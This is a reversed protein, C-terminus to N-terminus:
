ALFLDTHAMEAFRCFANALKMQEPTRCDPVFLEGSAVVVALCRARSTAVNLRNPSYLFEMGRPAEEASSTTMSYIVIPAEQGQFKDVTGVRAGPIREAIEAVQSNYPAVILIDQLRITAEVRESNVWRAKAALIEEVLSAIAEAEQVSESTNGEHMVEILRLGSGVLPGGVVAQRELGKRAHLRDEYFLESTFACIDPHLRWTRDLFLGRDPPVTAHEGLLHDLVSVDAGPPHVGQQPQDLQRPDGLLVLSKTARAVAVANALAFQGAEDVFLLDVSDILDPHCWLWATGAALQADGNLVANRVNQSKDSATIDASACRKEEDAKQMGRFTVGKEKAARCVEDLLNGIVKHSTATIGVKLGRQLARVIMRAGTFTKGAGPPGQIPLVSHDLETTLRVAADVLSEGERALQARPPSRLLLDAIVGREPFGNDAIEAATGFVSDRLDYDRVDDFPILAAPHPVKSTKGRKLDITGKVDDIAVIEGAPKETRPDVPEDGVHLDHEQKPFRYRHVASKKITGVVGEYELGGLTARDEIMEVDSLDRCRFYEWWMSKKERRHFEVLQATLWRAHQEETREAVDIPVDSTLREVLERIAAQRETSEQSPPTEVRTPRPISTGADAEHASRLKELWEDLRLTSICDDRNYAEIEGLLAEGDVGEGLQLWAEFQALASRANRLDVARTYNYFPEMQKISYSEVSARLAQKVVRLLDVFVDARLLGDLEDERTGYRGMLKKLQTTEYHGYHYVHMDPYQERRAVVYDIFQEFGAKEAAPYLARLREYNGDRDVYGFLYQIGYTFAYPDGEFDFFIDGASPAPLAALGQNEVIPQLLEHKPQQATRGEVQIRAQGQIRAFSTKTIGDLPSTSAALAAMTDVGAAVLTKRQSRSIGAVLSLHDVDHRERNCQEYWDCVDCHAVPDVATAIIEEAEMAALFRQRVSRYYAAYDAVRFSRRTRAPDGLAIHVYAPQAHQIQELTDAYLLVQLLAGGKAERALKTDIIEYSWDGFRSPTSVKELFDPFGLWRGDFFAGQYIINAGAKMAEMTDRAAMKWRDLTPLANDRQIEVVTIPENARRTNLYQQEHELGLRRMVELGPDEYVHPKPGGLATRRNLQTLHPCTLFNSLDTASFILRGAITHM